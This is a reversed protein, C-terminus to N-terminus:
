LKGLTMIMEIHRKLAKKENETVRFSKSPHTHLAKVGAGYNEKLLESYVDDGIAHRLLKNMLRWIHSQVAPQKNAPAQKGEMGNKVKWNEYCAEFDPFEDSLWGFAHWAPTMDADSLYEEYECVDNPNDLLLVRQYNVLSAIVEEKAEAKATGFRGFYDFCYSKCNEDEIACVAMAMDVSKVKYKIGHRSVFRGDDTEVGVGKTDRVGFVVDYLSLFESM